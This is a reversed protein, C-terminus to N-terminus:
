RLEVRRNKQWADENHGMAAPREEGYSVTEIRSRAVGQLALYNAVAKARREGLALNYERTGREDAHGDLRIPGSTNKLRQAQADLAARTEPRLTSQDFDFYFVTELDAGDDMSGASLGDDAGAGAASASGAADAGAGASASAGASDDSPTSSCGAVFALVFFLSLLKKM